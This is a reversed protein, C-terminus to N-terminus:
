PGVERGDRAALMQDAQDWSHRAYEDAHGSREPNALLGTLAAEALRDRLSDRFGDNEECLRFYAVRLVMYEDTSVWQRGDPTNHATPVPIEQQPM